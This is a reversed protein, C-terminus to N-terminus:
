SRGLILDVAWCGRAHAGPSRCHALVEAETCGAAALADALERLWDFSRTEYITTALEMVEPTLCSPNLPPPPRFPNGFIDRV